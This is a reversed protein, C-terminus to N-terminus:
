YIGIPALESTEKGFRQDVNSTLTLRWRTNMWDKKALAALGGAGSVQM